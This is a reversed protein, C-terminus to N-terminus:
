APEDGFKYGVGPASLIWQPDAPDAELKQQIHGIHVDVMRDGGNFDCGGVQQVLQESSLVPDGDAKLYAEVVGRISQEGDIVLINAM